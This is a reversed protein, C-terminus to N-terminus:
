RYILKTNMSIDKSWLIDYILMMDQEILKSLCIRNQDRLNVHEVAAKRAKAMAKAAKEVLMEKCLLM